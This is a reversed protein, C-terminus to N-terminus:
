SLCYQARNKMRQRGSGYNEDDSNENKQLAIVKTVTKNSQEPCAIQM